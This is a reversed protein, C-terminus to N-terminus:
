WTCNAVLKKVKEFEMREPLFPLDNHFNHLSEPYQVDVELFYGENSKDNYSKELDENFESFDEVWKFDSVPLKQSLTSGHLKNVDWYKLYSWEKNEDYDKMYKNNSKAYSHISYCPM